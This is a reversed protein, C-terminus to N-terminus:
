KPIRGYSGLLESLLGLQSKVSSDIAIAYGAMKTATLAAKHASECVGKTKLFIEKKKSTSVRKALITAYEASFKAHAHAANAQQAAAKSASAGASICPMAEGASQALKLAEQIVDRSANIAMSNLAEADEASKASASCWEEVMEAVEGPTAAAVEESIKETIEKVKFKAHNEERALDLLHESVKM